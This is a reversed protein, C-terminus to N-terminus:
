PLCCLVGDSPNTNDHSDDLTSSYCTWPDVATCDLVRTFGNCAKDAIQGNALRGCGAVARNFQNNTSSCSYNSGSGRSGNGDYRAPQTSGFFGPLSNCKQMDATRPSSCISAGAACLESARPLGGSRNPNFRGPCAFVGAGLDTGGGYRCGAVATGGDTPPPPPGDTTGGPDSGPKQCVGGSCELGDPCYPNAEDCSYHVGALDPNYCSVAVGVAMAGLFWLTKKM